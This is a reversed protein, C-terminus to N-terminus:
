FQGREKVRFSSTKMKDVNSMGILWFLESWNSEFNTDILVSQKSYLKWWADMFDWQGKDALNSRTEIENNNRNNKIKYSDRQSKYETHM